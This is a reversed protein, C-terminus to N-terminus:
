EGWLPWWPASEAGYAGSITSEIAAVDHVTALKPGCLLDTTLQAGFALDRLRRWDGPDLILASDPAPRDRLEDAARALVEAFIALAASIADLTDAPHPTSAM